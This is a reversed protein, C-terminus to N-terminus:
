IPEGDRVELEDEREKGVAVDASSGGCTVKRRGAVARVNRDDGRARLEALSSGSVSPKSFGLYRGDRIDEM